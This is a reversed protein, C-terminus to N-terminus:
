TPKASGLIRRDLREDDLGAPEQHILVEAGPFAEILRAEADDAIDHAADLTLAGDLELHLEIFRTPGACRTRLDHLGHVRPDSRVIQEIRNRDDIPLERDMLMDLATRGITLANLLLFIAIALGVVTDVWAPWGDAYLFLSAVVAVYIVLDGAYNRSDADIGISGTRRVVSRQYIVLALTAVISIVMIAIGIDPDALPVPDILRDFAEAMLLLASGVIVAAQVLAGLPEAKGHGFRHVRDAPRQAHRVTVRTVLSAGLDALSDLTSALVAVSGTVLWAVLKIVLLFATVGISALTARNRLDADNM